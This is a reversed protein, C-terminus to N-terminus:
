DLEKEQGNDNYKRDKYIIKSRKDTIINDTKTIIASTEVCTRTDFIPLNTELQLDFSITKYRNESDFSLSEPKEITHGDPFRLSCIVENGMYIFSFTRIYSLKTILSQVVALSDTFSDIYYKLSLTSTIPMRRTEASFEYINDDEVIDFCARITPQTLQDPVTQMENFNIICRPIENYVFDEDTVNTVDYSYHMLERYLIEDGTNMIFHPVQKGRLKVNDNLFLIAAKVMDGFFLETNNPDIEGNIIKLRLEKSTM